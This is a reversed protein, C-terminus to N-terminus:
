LYLSFCFLLISVITVPPHANEALLSQAWGDVRFSLFTGVAFTVYKAGNPFYEHPTFSPQPRSTVSQHKRVDYLGRNWAAPTQLQEPHSPVAARDALLEASGIRHMHKWLESSQAAGPVSFVPWVCILYVSCRIVFLFWAFNFSCTDILVQFHFLCGSFFLCMLYIFSWWMKNVCYSKM